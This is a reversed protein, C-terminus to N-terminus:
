PKLVLPSQAYARVLDVYGRNESRVFAQRIRAQNAMLLGARRALDVRNIRMAANVFGDALTVQGECSAVVKQGLELAGSYSIQRHELPYSGSADVPLGNDIERYEGLEDFNEFAYGLPDMLAHCGSCVPEALAIELAGRRTVNPFSPNGEEVEPPPPPPARNFLRDALIAGRRSISPEHSLFSQESFIGYRHGGLNATLLVRLAPANDALLEDWAFILEPSEPIGELGPAFVWEQAFLRAGGAPGNLAAFAETVLEGAFDYTTVAPLEVPPLVSEGHILLTLRSWVVLPEVFPGELPAPDGLPVCARGFEDEPDYVPLPNSTTMGGVPASGALPLSGTGGSATRGGSGLPSEGGTGAGGVDYRGSCGSLAAM